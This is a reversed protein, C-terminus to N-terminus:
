RNQKESPEYKARLLERQAREAEAEAKAARLELERLDVKYSTGQESQVSTVREFGHAENASLMTEVTGYSTSVFIATLMLKHVSAPNATGLTMIGELRFEYTGPTSKYFVRHSYLTGVETESYGRLFVSSENHDNGGSTQDIQFYAMTAASMGVVAKGYVM